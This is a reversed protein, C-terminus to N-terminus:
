QAAEAIQSTYTLTQTITGAKATAGVSIGAMMRFEGSNATKNTTNGWVLETATANMRVDKATSAVYQPAQQAIAITPEDVDRVASFLLTFSPSPFTDSIVQLTGEPLTLQGCTQDHRMRPHYFIVKAGGPTFGASESAYGGNTDSGDDTTTVPGGISSIGSLAARLTPPTANDSANFAATVVFSDPHFLTGNGSGSFCEVTVSTAADAESVQPTPTVWVSVWISVFVTGIASYVIGKTRSM